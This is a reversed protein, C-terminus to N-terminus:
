PAAGFAIAAFPDGVCNFAQHAQLMATAERDNSADYLRIIKHCRRCKWIDHCGTDAFPTLTDLWSM